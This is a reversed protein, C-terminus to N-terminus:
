KQLQEQQLDECHRKWVEERHIKIEPPATIGLCVRNKNVATVSIIVGSAPLFIKEGVKRSLVLM